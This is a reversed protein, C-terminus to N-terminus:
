ADPSSVITLRRTGSLDRAPNLYIKFLPSLRPWIGPELADGVRAVFPQLRYVGPELGLVSKSVYGLEWAASWHDFSFGTWPADGGSATGASACGMVYWQDDFQWQPNAGFNHAPLPMVRQGNKTLRSVLASGIFGSAGAVLIDM